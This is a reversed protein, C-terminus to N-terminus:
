CHHCSRANTTATIVVRGPHAPKEAVLSGRRYDFAGASSLPPPDFALGFPGSLPSGGVTAIPTPAGSSGLQSAGFEVVTSTLDNAVWLDGSADFAVSSPASLSGNSASLIVAPTPSGSTTLQTGSFEVVTSASANAVWLNGNADVALASPGDLSGSAAGLTVAPTPSGSAALQTAAFQVVTNTGANAVWLNGNADFAVGTPGSLSGGTASLTVTSQFSFPDTALGVIESADHNTVWVSGGADLTLGGLFERSGSTVTLTFLPNPPLPVNAELDNVGFGIVTGVNVVQNDYNTAAWLVGSADFAAAIPAATGTQVIFAPVSSAGPALQTASYALLASNTSGVTGVWLAGTGPRKAYTVSVSTVANNISVTDVREDNPPFNADFVTGVIPHPVLVPKPTVIYSGSALGTLTQTGTLIQHYGAPGSVTVSPTVGSPATITVALSGLGSPGTSNSSNCGEVSLGWATLVVAGVTVPRVSWRTRYM